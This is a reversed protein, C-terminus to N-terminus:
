VSRVAPVFLAGAVGHVQPPHLVFGLREMFWLAGEYEADVMQYLVPYQRQYDAVIQKAVRLFTQKYKEIANTTLLWPVGVPSLIDGAQCLGTIAVLDGNIRISWANGDSLQVSKRVADLPELGDARMLERADKARMFHALEEADGPQVPTVVAENM